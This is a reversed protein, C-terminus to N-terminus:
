IMGAGRSLMMFGMFIVLTGSVRAIENIAKRSLYSAFVGFGLLPPLTGLGFFFLFGAGEVPNGTGAAMIYMAQLPGCGLMLGNLLGIVFPRRRKVLEASVKRTMIKPFRISIFRLAPTLNLMKLGFLVLFLGAVLAAYGRMAPTITILGGLLGFLGGIVTYSLTKGMGYATHSLMTRFNGLTSDVYSVVFGGCMGICHFGTLFGLAFLMPHSVGFNLQQMVGPMLSRGWQVVSGLALLLVIFILFHRLRFWSAVSNATTASVPRVPQKTSVSAPATVSSAVEPVGYGKARITAVIDAESVNAPDFVVAVSATTHSADVSKVGALKGVATEITVECGSCQMGNVPINCSSSPSM